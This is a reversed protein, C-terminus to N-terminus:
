RARYEHCKKSCESVGNKTLHAQEAHLMRRQAPERALAVPMMARWVSAMEREEAGHGRVGACTNMSWQGENLIAGFVPPADIGETSSRWVPLTLVAGLQQRAHRCRDPQV